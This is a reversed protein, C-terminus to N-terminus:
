EVPSDYLAPTPCFEKLRHKRIMPFPLYGRSVLPLGELEQAAGNPTVRLSGVKEFNGQAYGM